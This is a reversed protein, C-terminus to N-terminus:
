FNIDLFINETCNYVYTQQLHWWSIIGYYKVIFKINLIRIVIINIIFEQKFSHETKYISKSTISIHISPKTFQLLVHKM